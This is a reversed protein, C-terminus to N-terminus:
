GILTKKNKFRKVSCGTLKVRFQHIFIRKFKKHSPVKMTSNKPIEDYM